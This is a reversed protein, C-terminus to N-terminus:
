SMEKLFFGKRLLIWKCRTTLDAGLMRKASGIPDFYKMSGIIAPMVTMVEIVPGLHLKDALIAGTGGAAILTMAAMLKQVGFKEFKGNLLNKTLFYLDLLTGYGVAKEPSTRGTAALYGTLGYEIAFVGVAEEAYTAADDDEDLKSGLLKRGINPIVALIIGHFANLVGFLQILADSAFDLSLISSEVPEIADSGGRSIFLNANSHASKPAKKFGFPSVNLRHHPVPSMGSVAGLTTLLSVLSLLAKKM